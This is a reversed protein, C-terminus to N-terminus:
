EIVKSLRRQITSVRMSVAAPSIKLRRAIEAKPLPKVGNYGTTWEFVKRNTPTLDHYVYDKWIDFPDRAKTVTPNGQPDTMSTASLEGHKAKQIRRLSMKMADAVEIDSPEYGRDSEYDRIYGKIKVADSRVNEPVHVVSSRKNRYRQLGKLHNFVHTKIAAGKSPDWGSAAQTAMIRARVSLSKDGQAYSKLGSQITPELYTMLQQFNNDDPNNKWDTYEKPPTGKNRSYDAFSTKM